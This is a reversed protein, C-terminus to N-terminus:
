IVRKLSKTQLIKCREKTDLREITNDENKKAKAIRKKKLYSLLETDEKDLCRDYFKPPLMKIGRSTIFDKPYCDSKYKEYWTRGIGPRRSMTVYEPKIIHLEGTEKNVNLYHDYADPGTIKKLTYRAVYAASEFTCAGVTSFGYPWLRTLTPSICLDGSETHKISEADLFHHNFLICHYHPRNSSEGYEGCHFFRINKGPESKRLRKMFRQFHDLNLSGDYPLNDEDYILTIFCNHDYLSAEHMCRLAWQRSRELRCGICQGCPVEVPM